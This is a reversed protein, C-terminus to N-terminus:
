SRSTRFSKAAMCKVQRGHVPTRIAKAKDEKYQSAHENSKGQGGQMQKSYKRTGSSISQARVAQM